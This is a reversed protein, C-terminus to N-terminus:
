DNSKYLLNSTDIKGELLGANLYYDMEENLLTPNIEEVKWFGGEESQLAVQEDLDLFKVLSKKAELENNNIFDVSKNYARFFAKFDNPYNKIFDESVVDFKPIYTPMIYKTIIPRELVKISNNILGITVTPEVAYAADIQDTTIAQLIANPPLSVFQVNEFSLGNKIFVQKMYSETTLGPLVGIKKDILDSIDKFNSDPRVIIADINENKNGSTHYGAGFIKSNNDSLYKVSYYALPSVTIAIDIKNTVILEALTNSSSISSLEVNLGEDEFYGKDIAIYLPLSSTLPFYGIKIIRKNSLENPKLLFFLYSLVVIIILIFFSLILIIKKIQNSM